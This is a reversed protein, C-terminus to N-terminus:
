YGTCTPSVNAAPNGTIGAVNGSYSSEGDNCYLGYTGNASVSNASGAFEASSARLVYVGDIGNASITSSEMRLRSGQDLYVGFRTNGTVSVGGRLDISANTYGQLGNTNGSIENTTPSLPNDSPGTRIVSAHQASIGGGGNASGNQRISNGGRLFVASARTVLIGFRSTTTGNGLITNGHLIASSSDAVSVGDLTNHEITNGCCVIGANGTTDGLAVSGGRVSAVGSFGNGRVFSSTMTIGAGDALVGQQGNNEITSGDIVASAGADVRIGHWMANRIVSARIALAAGGTARVGILGNSVNLGELMVRRAGNILIAPKSADSASVGGGSQARLIVDDREITVNETCTGSVVIVLRRDFLTSRNLAQGIRSGSACDVNLVLDTLASAATPWALAGAVALAATISPIVIRM